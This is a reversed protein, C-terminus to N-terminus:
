RALIVRGSNISEDTIIKYIYIGEAMGGTDLSVKHTKYAEVSDQSIRKVLSGTANYLEIIVQSSNNESVFEITLANTFPNPYAMFSVPLTQEEIVEQENVEEDPDTPAMMRNMPISMDICAAPRCPVRTVATTFTGTYNFGGNGRGGAILFNKYNEPTGPNNDNFYATTRTGNM